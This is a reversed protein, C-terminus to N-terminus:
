RCTHELFYTELFNLSSVCNTELSRQRSGASLEPLSMAWVQFTPLTDEVFRSRGNGKQEGYVDFCVSLGKVPDQEQGKESVDEM